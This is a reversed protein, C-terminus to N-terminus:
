NIVRLGAGKDLAPKQVSIKFVVHVPRGGGRVNKSWWANSIGATHRGNEVWRLLIWSQLPPPPAAFEISLKPQWDDLAVSLLVINM